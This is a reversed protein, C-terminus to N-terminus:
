RQFASLAANKGAVYATSFAIQLNYGGTDADIDMIEGSFYLNKIIKSALTKSNIENVAVGGSTIIAEDFNRYGIVKFSLNKLLLRMQKREKASIQNVYKDEPIGLLKVFYPIMKQPLYLKLLSAFEMRGHENFDRILRAELKQEDLAPKLDISFAINRKQKIENVYKRSLTLIIPGSLGFHTFLMEGFISEQKRGDVWVHVEVNKLSLGQLKQAGNGETILPVLSPLPEVISHGLQKAMNYGDGTSGTAPYSKGGTALIVTKSAYFDGGRLIVGKIKNDDVAIEAVDANCIIEVGSKKTWRVLTDVVDQASDSQPFVRGGRETITNLGIKEFLQLLEEVFFTKFVPKIFNANKGIHKLYEDISALNTINCRGKGTIRLKRGPRPMKELLLVKAGDNAAISAAMLGSAGGGIVIVDYMFKLLKKQM